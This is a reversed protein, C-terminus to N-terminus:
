GEHPVRETATDIEEQAVRAAVIAQALTVEDAAALLPHAGIEDLYRRLLDAEDGRAAQARTGAMPPSPLQGARAFMPHQSM